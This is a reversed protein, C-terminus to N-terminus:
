FLFSYVEEPKWNGLQCCNTILRIFLGIENQKV